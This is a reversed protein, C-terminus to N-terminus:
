LAEYRFEGKGFPGFLLRHMNPRSVIKLGYKQQIFHQIAIVESATFTCLIHALRLTEPYSQTILDNGLLREVAEIRKERPIERDIDLRFAYNGESLKAVYVDGLLFFPPKLKIERLEVLCPPKYHHLAEPLLYGNLRLTTAKSFALVINGRSRASSLIEKLLHTSNDFTGATLSGDFLIIGDRVIKSLTEQLWKELISAMRLPIQTFSPTAERNGEPFNAKQLTNYVEKLNEGTIHFIFPGLRLYEYNGGNKLISAGRIAVLIGKSTEGIKISSTDVSSIITKQTKPNLNIPHGNIQSAYLQESTTSNQQILKQGFHLNQKQESKLSHISVELFRQPLKLDM